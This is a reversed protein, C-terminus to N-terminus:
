DNEQDMLVSEVGDWKLQIVHDWAKELGEQESETAWFTFLYKRPKKTRKVCFTKAGITRSLLADFMMAEDDDYLEMSCPQLNKIKFKKM